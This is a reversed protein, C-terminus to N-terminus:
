YFKQWCTTSSCNTNVKISEKTYPSPTTIMYLMFDSWTLHPIIGPSEEWQENEIVYPDNKIGCSRIKEIYRRKSEESLKAYHESLGTMKCDHLCLTTYVHRGEFIASQPIARAHAQQLCM